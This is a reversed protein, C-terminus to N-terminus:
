ETKLLEGFYYEKQQATFGLYSCLNDIMKESRGNCYRRMLEVTSEWQRVSTGWRASERPIENRISDAMQDIRAIMEEDSLPGALFTALRTALLDQFEKNKVLASMLTGHHFCEVVDRFGFNGYLLGYDLDVLGCRWLGDAASRYYRMNSTLDVNSCYTQFIIWDAFSELHFMAKAEEYDADSQFSQTQCRQFTPYLETGPLIFNKIVSVTSAPVNAYSAYHAESHVERLAYIGWYEGNLYVVAYKHRQIIMADSCDAAVQHLLNDRM